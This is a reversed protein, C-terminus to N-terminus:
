SQETESPLVVFRRLRYTLLGLIFVATAGVAPALLGDIMLISGAVALGDAMAIVTSGREWLHNASSRQGSFAWGRMINMGYEVILYVVAFIGVSAVIRLVSPLVSSADFLFIPSPSM